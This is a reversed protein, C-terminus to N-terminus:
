NIPCLISIVAPSGAFSTYCLGWDIFGLTPFQVCGYHKHGEVSYELRNGRERTSKGEWIIRIPM